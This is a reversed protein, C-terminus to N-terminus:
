SCPPERNFYIKLFVVFGGLCRGSCICEELQFCRAALLEHAVPFDSYNCNFCSASSQQLAEDGKKSGKQTRRSTKQALSVLPNGTKMESVQRCFPKKELRGNQKMTNHNFGKWLLSEM